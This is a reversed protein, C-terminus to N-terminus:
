FGWDYYVAEVVICSVSVKLICSLLALWEIPPETETSGVIALRSVVTEFRRLFHVLRACEQYIENLTLRKIIRGARSIAQMDYKKKERSTVDM